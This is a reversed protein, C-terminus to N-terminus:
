EERQTCASLPKTARCLQNPAPTSGDLDWLRFNDFALHCGPPTGASLAFGGDIPGDAVVTAAVQDDVLLIIEGDLVLVGLRLRKAQKDSMPATLYDNALGIIEDAPDAPYITILDNIDVRDAYLAIEVVNEEPTTFDMAAQLMRIEGLNLVEVEAYFDHVFSDQLGWLGFGGDPEDACVQAHGDRMVLRAAPVGPTDVPLWRGTDVDLPDKVLPQTARISDVRELIAAADGLQSVPAPLLTFTHIMYEFVMKWEPWVLITAYCNVTIVTRGVLVHMDYANDDPEKERVVVIGMEGNPLTIDQPDTLYVDVGELKYTIKMRKYNKDVWEQLTGAEGLPDHYVLCEPALSETDSPDVAFIVYFPDSDDVTWQAPYTMSWHHLTSTYVDLAIAPPPFPWTSQPAPVPTTLPSIATVTPAPSASADLPLLTFSRVIQEFVAKFQPWNVSSTGCDVAYASNKDLAYLRHSMAGEGIALVVDIAAEGSPLNVSNREQVVQTLRLQEFTQRTQELASGAFEELTAFGASSSHVECRTFGSSAQFRVSTADTDDFSWGQPYALSWHHLESTYLQTPTVQMQSEPEHTATIATPTVRVGFRPSAPPATIPRSNGAAYTSNSIFLGAFLLIGIGFLLLTRLFSTPVFATRLFPHHPRRAWTIM